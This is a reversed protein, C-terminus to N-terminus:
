RAAAPAGLLRRAAAIVRAPPGAPVGPHREEDLPAWTASSPAILLVVSPTDVACALHVTGTDNAVLLRAGDLLAALGGLGTRGAVELAPARMRGAVERVLEREGAVGTLVVRLGEDALADGVAAFGEPSWRRAPDKAGPHLCAYAGPRLGPAAAALEARDGATVEFELEEGQPQAGLAAMLMLHRRIEHEGDPYPISLEPDPVYQGPTHFGATRAGGLLRALPNSVSGSGHQQIVLDFRRAQAAQLFGVTAAPDEPVDPLGPYGPFPLHDDLYRPYREPAWALAPLGVFTIRADPVAARLARWSPVACLLDGLGPTGRLVAIRAGRGALSRLIV